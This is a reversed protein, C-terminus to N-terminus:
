TVFLINRKKEPRVRAIRAKLKTLTEVYRDSNVTAGPELFDWFVTCMVKGASAQTKFKKKAPFNTHHWEMSQRKSESEYHHCTEDGTIVHDLFGDGKAEYRDLLDQGVDRQRDNQDQMIM